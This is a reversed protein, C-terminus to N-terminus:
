VRLEGGVLYISFSTKFHEISSQLRHVSMFVLKYISHPLCSNLLCTVTLLRCSFIQGYNQASIEMMKLKQGLLLSHGFLYKVILSVSSSSSKQSNENKNKYKAFYCQFACTLVLPTQDIYTHAHAKDPWNDM